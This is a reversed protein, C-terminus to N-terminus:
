DVFKTFFIRIATIINLTFVGLPQFSSSCTFHKVILSWGLTRTESSRMELGNFFIIRNIGQLYCAIVACSISFMVVFLLYDRERASRLHVSVTIYIVPQMYPFCVAFVSNFELFMGLCNAVDCWGDSVILDRCFSFLIMFKDWKRAYDLLRLIRRAHAIGTVNHLKKKKSNVNLFFFKSCTSLNWWLGSFHNCSGDRDPESSIHQKEGLGQHTIYFSFTAEPQLAHLDSVSRRSCAAESSACASVTPRCLATSFNGDKIPQSARSTPLCTHSTVISRFNSPKILFLAFM